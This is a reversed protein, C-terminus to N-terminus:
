YFHRQSCNRCSMHQRLAGQNFNWDVELYSNFEIKCNTNKCRFTEKTFRLLSEQKQELEKITKEAKGLKDEFEQNKNKETTMEHELTNLAASYGVVKASCHENVKKLIELGVDNVESVVRDFDPSGLLYDIHDKCSTAIVDRLARESEPTSQYVREVIQFFTGDICPDGLGMSEKFKTVALNKLEPIDYRDGFAFVDIHSKLDLRPSVAIDSTRTLQSEVRPAQSELASSTRLALSSNANAIQSNPWTLNHLSTKSTPTAM